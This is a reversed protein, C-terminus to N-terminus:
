RNKILNLRLAPDNDVTSGSGVLHLPPLYFKKHM